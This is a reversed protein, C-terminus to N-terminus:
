ARYIRSILNDIIYSKTRSYFVDLKELHGHYRYTLVIDLLLAVLTTDFAMYMHKTIMMMGEDTKALYGFGIAKSLGVITGIFGLTAIAQIVYRVMELQGETEQKSNDIQSDVVQLTEGISQDNRYQTCAKKIFTNILFSMGRKELNIVNLKISAVEEPTLVLQDETPLLNLGFGESQKQLFQDKENLELLGMIFAAISLMQIYGEFSGGFVRIITSLPNDTGVVNSLAILLFWIVLAAGLSIGIHILRSSVNKM